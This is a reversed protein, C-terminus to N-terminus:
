TEPKQKNTAVYDIYQQVSHRAQADLNLITDTLDCVNGNAARYEDLLEPSCRYKTRGLLYDTTVHFLDALKDLTVLDPYHVGNEYNSITGTSLNLYDSLDKQTLNFEKRLTTIMVGIEM